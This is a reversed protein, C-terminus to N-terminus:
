SNLEVMDELMLTSSNKPLAAEDFCTMMKELNNEIGRIAGMLSSSDLHSERVVVAIGLSEFSKANDLQDGRSGIELPILIMPKKLAFFEFISNAGARSITFDALAFVDKLEDNLFEFSKYNEHQFDLQKGAGTIHIIKYTKVLQPLIGHLAENIRMAGLSGGMVLIVKQLSDSFGCLQRARQPDGQSLEKRIPIGVFKSKDSRLFKKTEPFGYFIIKAFPNIIKNALGPTLDSEHSIVPIGLAWASLAVPVSVFGGKSFVLQPRIRVLLLFAQIVGFIVKFIDIFNELSFYRRLKGASIQYFPVPYSSMINKEIGKSGIYFVQWGLTEYDPLMAIHPMVHGATGGGTLVIKRPKKM